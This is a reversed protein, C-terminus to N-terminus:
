NALSPAAVRAPERSLGVLAAGVLTLAAAVVAAFTMGVAYEHPASGTAPALAIVAATLAFGVCSGVYRATNNAGSGMAVSSAPVSQVALTGLAANTLGYGAGAIVFGPLLRVWDSHETFGIMALEGAGCLALGVALRIRASIRQVRGSRLAVVTSLGAWIGIVLASGVPTLGLAIQMATPTYSIFGIVAIGNFLAGLTAARFLPRRLLALDLMPEAVRREVVVFVAILLVAAILLVIVAPQGWGARAQTLATVLLGVGVAFTLAGPLDLRRPVDSRSEDVGLRGAIALAAAAVAVLWFAVRWSVLETLAAAILPGIATGAGVMAGWLGTARARAPGTPFAHGVLGLGAAMVAASAGGQLVRGIVFVATDQALACIVSSLAFAAAGIVFVRRRGHDDALSGAVLLVTSLGLSIGGIIWTTGVANAGLSAATDPVIVLAMAFNALVLFTSASSVVLTSRTRDSTSTTAM